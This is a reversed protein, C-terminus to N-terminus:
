NFKKNEPIKELSQKATQYNIEAQKLSNEDQNLKQRYLYEETNRKTVCARHLQELTFQKIELEKMDHVFDAVTSKTLATENRKELNQEM